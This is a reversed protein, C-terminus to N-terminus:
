TADRTANCGTAFDAADTALAKASEEGSEKEPNGMAMVDGTGKGRGAGAVTENTLTKGASSLPPLGAGM